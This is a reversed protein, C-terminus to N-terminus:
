TRKSAFLQILHLNVLCKLFCGSSAFCRIPDRPQACRRMKASTPNPPHHGPWNLLVPLLRPTMVLLDTWSYGLLIGSAQLAFSGSDRRLSFGLRQELARLSPCRCGRCAFAMKTM